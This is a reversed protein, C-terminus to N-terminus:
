GRALMIVDALNVGTHGTALSCGLADCWSGSDNNRLMASYDLGMAEGKAFTMGDVIAGANSTSGDTGDTGAVLLVGPTGALLPAARMAFESNRGGKGTGRVIVGTEAGAILLLPRGPDFNQAFTRNLFRSVAEEVGGTLPEPYAECIYGEREALIVLCSILEMNSDIIHTEVNRHSHDRAEQMGAAIGICKDTVPNKGPFGYKELIAIVDNSLVERPHLIGSGITGLDNSLVDSVVLEVIRGARIHRLLKGGKVESFFSRIMNLEEIEIGNKMLVTNLERKEHLTIGRAPAAVMASTGGSMLYLLTSAEDGGEVFGILESAAQLSREDPVPHSSRFVKINGSLDSGTSNSIVLGRVIREGLVSLAGRAMKISCKGTAVLDVGVGQEEFLRNLRLFGSVIAEPDHVDLSMKFIRALKERHEGTDAM